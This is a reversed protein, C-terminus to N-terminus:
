TGPTKFHIRYHLIATSGDAGLNERMVIPDVEEHFLDPLAEVYAGNSADEYPASDHDPRVLPRTTADNIYWARVANMSQQQFHEAEVAVIGDEEAFVADPAISPPPYVAVGSINAIASLFLLSAINM